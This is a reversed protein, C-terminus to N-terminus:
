CFRASNQFVCNIAESDNTFMTREAEDWDIQGGNNGIRIWHWCDIFKCKYVTCQVNSIFASKCAWGYNAGGCNEFTSSEIRIQGNKRPYESYFVGGLKEWKDYNEYKYRCNLYKCEEIRVSGVQELDLTRGSFDIFETNRIEVRECNDFTIPHKSGGRFVCSEIVVSTKQSFCLSDEQLDVEVNVLRINPTDAERLRELMRLNVEEGCSPQFITLNSNACICSKALLYMYGQFVVDPISDVRAEYADVYASVKVELIAKAMVALYRLEEKTIGLAECFGVLLRIQEDNKEEVGMLISADLVFNYKLPIEKCEGTFNVFDEIEVTLAMRLFEGAELEAQAGALIRKYIFLQADKIEGAQQLIVALMKLYGNKIFDTSDRLSDNKIPYNKAKNNEIYQCLLDIKGNAM